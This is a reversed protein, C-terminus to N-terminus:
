ASTVPTELSLSPIPAASHAAPNPLAMLDNDLRELLRSLEDRDANPWSQFVSDLLSTRAARISALGTRGRETLSIRSARRDDPDPERIVLGLQEFYSLHRSVTSLDLCVTTALDSPRMQGQTELTSLVVFSGKELKDPAEPHMTRLSPSYVRKTLLHITRELRAALDADIPHTAIIPGRSNETSAQQL